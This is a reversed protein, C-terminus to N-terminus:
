RPLATSTANKTEVTKIKQWIFVEQQRKANVSVRENIPTHAPKLKKGHFGTLSAPHEVTCRLM